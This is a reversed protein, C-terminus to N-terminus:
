FCFSQEQLNYLWLLAKVRGLRSFVKEGAFYDTLVFGYSFVPPIYGLSIFMSFVLIFETNNLYM